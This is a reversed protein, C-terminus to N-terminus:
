CCKVCESCNNMKYVGILDDAQEFMGNRLSIILFQADKCTRQKIYSAIIAVNKYDLAADIEDMIYFPTPKYSHLAFVLALSSLTKEGGSLHAINKWSKKPPMVSFVIGESFPDLSDVLELEANGGQTILQYLLKLHQTISHFGQMFEDHRKRRLLEAHKRNSERESHIQQYLSQLSLFESKKQQFDMAFNDFQGQTLKFSYLKLQAALTQKQKILSKLQQCSLLTPQASNSSKVHEDDAIDMQMDNQPQSESENNQLKNEMIEECTSDNFLIFKLSEIDKALEHQANEYSNISKQISQSDSQFSKQVFSLSQKLEQLKSQNEKQQVLEDKAQNLKALLSGENENLQNLEASLSQLTDTQRKIENELEGSKQLCAANENKSSLRKEIVSIEAQAKAISTSLHEKQEQLTSVQSHATRYPIGGIEYIKEKLEAIVQIFQISEQELELINEKQQQIKLSLDEYYSAEDSFELEKLKFNELHRQSYEMSKKSSSIENDNSKITQIVEARLQMFQKLSNEAEKLAVKLSDMEQQVLDIARTLDSANFKVSANSKKSSFMSKPTIGRGNRYSQSQQGGGSIEGSTEILKGDLTVVRFRLKQGFAVQNAQTMNQCVLTDGLAHFFADRYKEDICEILDVLRAAPFSDKKSPRFKEIQDLIVFTLVGAGKKRLADVCKQATSTDDVIINQMAYGSCADIATCYEDPICGLDGLRGHIGTIRFEKEFMQLLSNSPINSVQSQEDQLEYLKQSCEAISRKLENTQGETETIKTHLSNLHSNLKDNEKEKEDIKGILNSVNLNEKDISLLNSEREKLFTGLVKENQDLQKSIESKKTKIPLFKSQVTDLEIQISKTSQSNERELFDLENKAASLSEEVQILEKQKATVELQLTSANRASNSVTQKEEDITKQMKKLQSRAYKIDEELAIKKKIVVDADHRVHKHQKQILDVSNQLSDLDINMQNFSEIESSIKDVEKEMKQKLKDMSKQCKEIELQAEYKEIQFISSQIQVHENHIDALKLLEDRQKQVQEFEKKSFSFKSYAETEDSALEEYKAINADIQPIYVNTGIIDELYELLGEEHENNGKPKMLSILEVEGQLILFRNHDLDIKWVKLLEIVQAYTANQGNIFYDSRNSKFVSRSVTFTNSCEAANSSQLHFEVSVSCSDLNPYKDSSHILDSLKGQRMKRAKFGFVFLLADIVNSKGSGNPGVIATFPKSLPGIIHRGAYSKFNEIILRQITLQPERHHLDTSIIGNANSHELAAALM